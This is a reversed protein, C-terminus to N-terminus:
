LAPVAVRGVAIVVFVYDFSISFQCCSFIFWPVFLALVAWCPISSAFLFLFALVVVRMRTPMLAFVLLAILAGFGTRSRSLAVRLITIIVCCGGLLQAM